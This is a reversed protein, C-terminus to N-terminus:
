VRARPEDRDWLVDGASIQIYIRNEPLKLGGAEAVVQDLLLVAKKEPTLKEKDQPDASQQPSVPDQARSVPAFGFVIAVAIVMAAGNKTNM